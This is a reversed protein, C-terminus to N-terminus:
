KLITRARPYTPGKTATWHWDFGVLAPNFGIVTRQNKAAHDGIEEAIEQRDFNDFFTLWGFAIALRAFACFFEDLPPRVEGLGTENALDVCSPRNLSFNDSIVTLEDPLDNAVAREAFLAFFM